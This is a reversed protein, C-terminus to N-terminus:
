KKILEQIMIDKHNIFSNIIKYSETEEYKILKIGESSFEYIESNPTGLLIPSHSVIIFQSGKSSAEYILSLLTLQRSPSLAAEPEDMLFLGSAESMSKFLHLFGEGHSEKHYYEPIKFEKSYEEEKTAVNFFTEARFFYNYKTKKPGKYLTIANVLDSAEDYTKFNYNKTGGEKNFGYSEAIAELLTSKGSGNEGVFFTIPVNFLFEDLCKLSNIHNVYSDKDILNHNIKFGEIFLNNM